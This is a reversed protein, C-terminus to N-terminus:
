VKDYTLKFIDPKCPYLEGRVGQIIYDNPSATHIGELTFIEMKVDPTGSNIIRAAGVGWPTLLAQNIWEPDEEQRVDATWQFAEIVVPIKKYKAM